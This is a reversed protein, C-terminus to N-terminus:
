SDDCTHARFNELSTTTPGEAGERLVQGPKLKKLDALTFSVGVASWSNDETAGYLHYSRKPDLKALRTDVTWGDAPATTPATLPWTSFGTLPDARGWEGVYEVAEPDPDDLALLAVDIHDHCMVIVGLPRGDETVSIGTVGAIPVTCGALAPLATLAGVLAAAVAFPRRPRTPM